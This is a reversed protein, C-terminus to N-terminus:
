LAPADSKTKTLATADSGSSPTDTNPSASSVSKLKKKVEDRLKILYGYDESVLTDCLLEYTINDAPIDGLTLLTRAFVAVPVGADSVGDELVAIEDGVTALRLEVRQHLKGDYMIGVPLAGTCTIKDSM